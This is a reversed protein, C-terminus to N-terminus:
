PWKCCKRRDCLVCLKSKLIVLFFFFLIRHLHIIARQFIIILNFCFYLGMKRQKKKPHERHLFPCNIHIILYSIMLLFTYIKMNHWECRIHLISTEHASTASKNYVHIHIFSASVKKRKENADMSKYNHRCIFNHKFWFFFLPFQTEM